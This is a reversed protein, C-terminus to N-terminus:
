LSAARGSRRPRVIDAVSWRPASMECDRAAPVGKGEFSPLEGGRCRVGSSQAPLRALLHCTGDFPTISPGWKARVCTLPSSGLRPISLSRYCVV